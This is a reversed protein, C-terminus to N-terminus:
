TLAKLGDGRTFVVTRARGDVRSQVINIQDHFLEFLLTNSLRLARVEGPTASFRIWTVDAQREMTCRTTPLARGTADRLTLVAQAYVCATGTRRALAEELDQTFVRVAVELTSTEPRWAVTTLSSHLPHAAGISLAVVLTSVM